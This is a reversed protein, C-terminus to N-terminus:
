RCDWTTKYAHRPPVMREFVDVSVDEDRNFFYFVSTIVVFINTATTTATTTDLVYMSNM